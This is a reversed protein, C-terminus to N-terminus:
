TMNLQGVMHLLDPDLKSPLVLTVVSQGYSRLLMSRTTRLNGFNLVVDRFLVERSHDLVTVIPSDCPVSAYKPLYTKPLHPFIGWELRMRIETPDNPKAMRRFILAGGDFPLQELVRWLLAQTSVQLTRKVGCLQEISVNRWEAFESVAVDPILLCSAFRQCFREEVKIDSTPRPARHRTEVSSGTLRDWM